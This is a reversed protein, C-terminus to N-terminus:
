IKGRVGWGGYMSSTTSVDDKM